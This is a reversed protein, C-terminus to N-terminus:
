LSLDWSTQQGSLDPDFNLMFAKTSTPVEYVIAGKITAGAAVNGEPGAAGALINEDYKQGSADTLNYEVLSSAIQQKNSINKMSVEIQIFTHGATPTSLTNGPNISVKTVTVQWTNGVSVLENLKHHASVTAPTLNIGPTVNLTGSQVTSTINSLSSQATNAAFKGAIALIGCIALILVLCGGGVFWPWLVRKKPPQQYMPPQGPYYPQQGPNYPPQGPNYPPQGPNYPPQGPNSWQPNSDGSPYQQPNNWQPNSNDPPYQQSM